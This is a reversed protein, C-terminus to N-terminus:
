SSSSSATRAASSSGTTASPFRAQRRRERAHGRGRARRPLARGHSALVPRTARRIPGVLRWARRLVAAAAIRRAYAKLERNGLEFSTASLKTAVAWGDVADPAVGCGNPWCCRPRGRRLPERASRLSSPSALRAAPAGRHQGAAAGGAAATLSKKPGRRRARRPRRAAARRDRRAARRPHGPRRRRRPAPADAATSHPRRDGGHRDGRARLRGQSVAPRQADRAHHGRGRRGARADDSGTERRM